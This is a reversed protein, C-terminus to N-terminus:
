RLAVIATAVTGTSLVRAVTIPLLTGAPVATFTVPNGELDHVALAGAGGVWLAEAPEDLDADDDPTVAEFSTFSHVDRAPVRRGDRDHVYGLPM